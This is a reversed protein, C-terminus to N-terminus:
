NPIRIIFVTGEGEKSEVTLAGGHAKVIDYALSLGLGTGQGTPKTTFFPQFIKEKIADPIGDGNDEVRIGLGQVRKETSVKVMPKYEAVGRKSRENVAYLANNILNLVVRGIDQPIINVLGISSDFSTQLDANFSKDKARLGHYALRLYEDSLANIDTPVREGSGARSHELMGKVIADARKGHHNIKELNQQLDDAIALGEQVDGKRLEDKMEDILETSVESFNNVFNLPNQIEHAIGATLEGLSAMKESQILQKQTARLDTLTKELVQNAKQKQRNNRYILLMILLTTAIGAFFLYTRRRNERATREKEENQAKLQENLTLQQFDYLQSQKIATLSDRAAISLRLYKNASDLQHKLSFGSALSEYANSLNNESSFLATISGLSRLVVLQKRGYYLVSDANATSLFYKLKSEQAAAVVTVNEQSLAYQLALDLYRRAVSDKGSRRNVEGMAFYINALYKTISGRKAYKEGEEAYIMASDLKGMMMYSSSLVMDAVTVRFANGIDVGIKRGEKFYHIGETSGSRLKLHGYMHNLMSLTVFRNKGPTPYPSLEWIDKEKADAIVEFAMNLNKLAASLRGLYIQQYAVQGLLHSEEIKRGYKRALELRYLAYHLASDRNTEEYFTYVARSTRFRTSDDTTQNFVKYISDPLRPQSRTFLSILLFMFLIYAIRM